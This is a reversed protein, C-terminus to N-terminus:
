TQEHKMMTATADLRIMALIRFNVNPCFVSTQIYLTPHQGYTSHLFLYLCLPKSVKLDMNSAIILLPSKLVSVEVTPSCHGLHTLWSGSNHHKSHSQFKQTNSQQILACLWPPSFSQDSYGTYPPSNNDSFSHGRCSRLRSM